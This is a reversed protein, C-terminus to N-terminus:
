DNRDSTRDVATPMMKPMDLKTFNNIGKMIPYKFSRPMWVTAAEDAITRNNPTIGTM